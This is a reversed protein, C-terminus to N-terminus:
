ETVELKDMIKKLRRLVKDMDAQLDTLDIMGNAVNGSGGCSACPILAPNGDNDKTNDDVGTGICRGCRGPITPNAM